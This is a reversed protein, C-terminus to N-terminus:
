AASRPQRARGQDPHGGVPEDDTGVEYHPFRGLLYCGAGALGAVVFVSFWLLSLTIAEEAAVGLPALLVVLSGERVGLGNLSIPALTLLSVLPVLAFFLPLDLSLGLSWALLWVMVANAAQVVASLCSAGLLLGPSQRYTAAAAGILRVKGWVDRRAATFRSASDPLLLFVLVGALTLGAAGAGWWPAWAPQRIVLAAAAAMPLLVFVGSLRDALVTLFAPWRRGSRGDLYCARVVDGGVSTPLLLNFFTGIFYFSLFDRFRGGFGLPRALRQWRVSSVVQAFCYCLVAALWGQWRVRALAAGVRAFDVRWALVALLAISGLIRPVKKM